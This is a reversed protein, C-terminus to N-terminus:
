PNLVIECNVRAAMKVTLRDEARCTVETGASAGSTALTWDFVVGTCEQGLLDLALEQELTYDVIHNMTTSESGVSETAGPIILQPGAVLSDGAANIFWVKGDLGVPWENEVVFRFTVSAVDTWDFPSAIGAQLEQSIFTVVTDRWEVGQAWGTLPVELQGTCKVVDSHTAFQQNVGGANVLLTGSVSLSDPTSTLLSSLPPVTGSNEVVHIAYATDGVAYAAPLGPFNELAPGSLEVPGDHLHAVLQDIDFGLDVGFSNSWAFQLRPQTLQFMAPDWSPLDPLEVSASVPHSIAGDFQGFVGNVVVESWTLEISIGAGSPVPAGTTVLAVMWNWELGMEAGGGGLLRASDTSTSWVATSSGANPDLVVECTLPNGNADIFGECSGTIQVAMPLGSEIEISLLGAGLWISDVQTMNPLTWQWNTTWALDLNQGAPLESFLQAEEASLLYASVVGEDLVPMEVPRMEFAEFPFTVTVGGQTSIAVEGPIEVAELVDGFTWSGHVLPLAFVPDWAGEVTLADSVAYEQQICGTACIMWAAFALAGTQFGKRRHFQLSAM